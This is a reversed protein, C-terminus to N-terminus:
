ASVPKFLGWGCLADSMGLFRAERDPDNADGTTVESAVNLSAPPVNSGTHQFKPNNTNHPELPLPEVFDTAHIEPSSASQRNFQGRFSRGQEGSAIDVPVVDDTDTEIKEETGWSWGGEPAASAAVVLM